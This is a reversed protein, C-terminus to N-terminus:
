FGGIVVAGRGVGAINKKAEPRAIRPFVSARCCDTPGGLTLNDMYGTVLESKLQMLNKKKKKKNNNSLKQHAIHGDTFIM